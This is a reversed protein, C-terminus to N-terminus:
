TPDSEFFKTWDFGLATAIAKENDVKNPDGRKGNEIYNYAQKSIGAAAAAQTQSLGQAERLERLWRRLVRVREDIM